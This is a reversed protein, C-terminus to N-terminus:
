KTHEGPGAFFIINSNRCVYGEKNVSPFNQANSCRSRTLRLLGWLWICKHKCTFFFETKIKIHVVTTSQEINRCGPFYCNYPMATGLNATVRGKGVGHGLKNRIQSVIGDFAISKCQNPRAPYTQFLKSFGWRVSRFTSQVYCPLFSSIM